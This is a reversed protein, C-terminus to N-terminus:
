THALAHSELSMCVSAAGATWTFSACQTGDRGKGMREGKHLGLFFYSHFTSNNLAACIEGLNQLSGKNTAVREKTLKGKIWTKECGRLDGHLAATPVSSNVSIKSAWIRLRWPYPKLLTELIFRTDSFHKIEKSFEVELSRNNESKIDGGRWSFITKMVTGFVGSKELFNCLPGGEVFFDM